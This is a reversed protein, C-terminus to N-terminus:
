WVDTGIVISQYGDRFLDKIELAGGITTNPRINIGIERLKNKYRDRICM